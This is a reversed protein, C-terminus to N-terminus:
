KSYSDPIIPTIPGSAQSVTLRYSRNILIATGKFGLIKFVMPLLNLMGGKSGM